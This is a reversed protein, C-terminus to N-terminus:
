VTETTKVNHRLPIRVVFTTGENEKSTVKISGNHMLVTSHTISLGLGTGGTERDRTKDVRYFRNFIKGLEEEAIGIGTDVVKFYANQHDCDVYVTVTGGNDTYKIGNEILNSIALTFKTVDVEAVVEKDAILELYIDKALALPSLRKVIEKCLKVMDTSQYKIPIERQDLKVLTLLDNIIETMRDVESNIDQLFEVYMEKPVEEQLLISESLVKISSLPTKLEHSVNSVFTQRTSEVQELKDAMNNCAEALDSIENHSRKNVIVRQDLHGESMKKIVALMNKLPETTIQSMFFMIIGSIIVVGCLLIIVQKQIDGITDFIDSASDSILVAGIQKSNDDVITVAAYIVEGAQERAVDKNDLSEVVEPLVVTKGIITKNSDNVVTGKSDLVVIRYGGQRSTEQIDYDFLEKKSEDFLYNMVTIHGSIVNAQSLMEKKREEIYYKDMTRFITSTFFLLPVFGIFIYTALLTWRLSKFPKKGKTLIIVLEGNQSYISQSM